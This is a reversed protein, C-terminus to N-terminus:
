RIEEDGEGVGARWSANNMSINQVDTFTEHHTLLLDRIASFSDPINRWTASLRETGSYNDDNALLCLTDLEMHMYTWSPLSIQPPIREFSIVEPLIHKYYKLAETRSLSNVRLAIPQPYKNREHFFLRPADPHAFQEGPWQYNFIRQLQIYRPTFTHRWILCKLEDPLEPFLEFSTAGITAQQTSNSM